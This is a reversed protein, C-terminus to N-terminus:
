VYALIIIFFSFIYLILSIREVSVAVMNWEDQIVSLKEQITSIQRGGSTQIKRNGEIEDITVSTTLSSHPVQSSGLCLITGVIGSLTNKLMMPPSSLKRIRVMRICM